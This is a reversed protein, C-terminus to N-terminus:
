ELDVLLFLLGAGVIGIAELIANERVDIEIVGENDRM